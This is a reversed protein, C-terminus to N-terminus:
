FHPSDIIGIKLIPPSALLVLEIDTKEISYNVNTPEHYVDIIYLGNSFRPEDRVVVQKKNTLELRVGKVVDVIKGNITILM